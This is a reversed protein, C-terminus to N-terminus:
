AAPLSLMLQQKIKDLMSLLHSALLLTSFAEREGVNIDRHSHPNKFIGIAGAFLHAISQKEAPPMDVKALLGDSENFAKRMLDAGLVTKPFNGLNRVEIEIIKFAEFVATDFAHVLFLPLIKKLMAPHLLSKPTLFLDNILARFNAEKIQLGKQTPYYKENDGEVDYGKQFYRIDLFDDPNNKYRIRTLRLCKYSKTKRKELGNVDNNLIKEILIIILQKNAETRGDNCNLKALRDRVINLNNKSAKCFDTFYIQQSQRGFRYREIIILLRSDDCGNLIAAVLDSAQNIEYESIIKQEEIDDLKTQKM